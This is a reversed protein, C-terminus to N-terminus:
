WARISIQMTIPLHDSLNQGEDIIRHEKTMDRNLISQSVVFHDNLKKHGLSAHHYTYGPSTFLNSCYALLKRRSLDDWLRDFPSEGRLETNLDGGIIVVHQPHDDILLEIMSLADTTETLCTERNSSDYFPM